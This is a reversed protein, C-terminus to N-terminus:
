AHSKPKFVLYLGQRLLQKPNRSHTRGAGNVHRWTPAEGKSGMGPHKGQSHPANSKQLLMQYNSVLPKLQATIGVANVKIALLFYADSSLPM